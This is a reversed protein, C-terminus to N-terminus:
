FYYGLFKEVIELDDKGFTCLNVDTGEAAIVAFFDSNRFNVTKRLLIQRAM